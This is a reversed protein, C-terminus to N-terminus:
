LKSAVNEKPTTPKPEEAALQSEEVPKPEAARPEPPPPLPREERILRTLREPVESADWPAPLPLEIRTFILASLLSVLLSRALTRRFREDEEGGRTWPMVAERAPLVSIEREIVWDLKREEERRKLELIDDEVVEAHDQWRDIEDTIEERRTEIEGLRKEFM